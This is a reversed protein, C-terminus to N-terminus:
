SCLMSKGQLVSCVGEVFWSGFSTAAAKTDSQFWSWVGGQQPEKVFEIEGDILARKKLTNVALHMSGLADILGLKLAQKGSFIQGNGWVAAQIIDLHRNAAVDEIFQQESNDAISQLLAKDQESMDVFPNTANKYAGAKISINKIKYSELLERVQFLYPFCVGISGVLAMGPAIIYDAASAIYYGGSACVNEVLAVVPKPHAAKLAKLETHILQGTGSASGHCEMKLLIGKIDPDSFLKTLAEIYSDSDTLMGKFSTVGIKTKPEIYAGYQKKIGIIFLPVVQLLVLIFFINKLIDFFRM